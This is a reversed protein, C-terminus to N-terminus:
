RRGDSASDSVVVDVDFRRERQQDDAGGNLWCAQGTPAEPATRWTSMSMATEKVPGSAQLERAQCLVAAAASVNSRHRVRGPLNSGCVDVLRRRNMLYRQPM